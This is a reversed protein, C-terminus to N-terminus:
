LSSSSTNSKKLSARKWMWIGLAVLGFGNLLLWLSKPLSLWAEPSPPSAVMSTLYQPHEPILTRVDAVLQPPVDLNIGDAQDRFDLVHWREPKAVLFRSEPIPENFTAEELFALELSQVVTQDLRITVACRPLTIGGAFTTFGFYDVEQLVIDDLSSVKRTPIATDWDITNTTTLKGPVGEPTSTSTLRVSNREREAHDPAYGNARSNLPFRFLTLNPTVSPTRGPDYLHVQRNDGDVIISLGDVHAHTQLNMTHRLQNGQEWLQRVPPVFYKGEGAVETLFKEASAHDKGVDHRALLEHIQAQSLPKEPLVNFYVRFTAHASVIDSRMNDWLPELHDMV